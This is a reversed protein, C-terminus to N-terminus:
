RRVTKLSGWTLALSKTRQAAPAGAITEQIQLTIPSTAVVFLPQSPRILDDGRDGVRGILQFQRDADQVIVACVGLALLDSPREISPPLQPFAVANVGVQLEISDQTPLPVGRIGIYVPHNRLFIAMGLYATLPVEGAVQGVEGSYELWCGEVLVHISAGASVWVEEYEAFLDAVTEAAGPTQVPISIFNWGIYLQYETQVKPAPLPESVEPTKVEKLSDEAKLVSVFNLDLLQATPPPTSSSRPPPPPTAYSSCNNSSNGTAEYGGKTWYGWQNEEGIDWQGNSNDDDYDDIHGHGGIYEDSTDCGRGECPDATSGPCFHAAPTGHALVDACWLILISSLVIRITKM